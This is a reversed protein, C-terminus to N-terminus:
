ISTYQFVVKPSNEQKTSEPYFFVDEESESGEGDEYDQFKEWNAKPEEEFKM